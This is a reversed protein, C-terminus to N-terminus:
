LVQILKTLTTEVLTAMNKQNFLLFIIFLLYTSYRVQLAQLFDQELEGISKKEEKRNISCYPLIKSDVPEDEAVQGTFSTNVLIPLPKM